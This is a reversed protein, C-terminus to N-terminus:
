TGPDASTALVEAEPEALVDGGLHQGIDQLETLPQTMRMESRPPDIVAQGAGQWQSPGTPTIQVDHTPGSHVPPVFPEVHHPRHHLNTPPMPLMLEDIM